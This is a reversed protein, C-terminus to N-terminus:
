IINFKIYHSLLVSTIVYICILLIYFKYQLKFFVQLININIHLIFLFIALDIKIDNDIFISILYFNM